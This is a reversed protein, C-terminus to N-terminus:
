HSVNRNFASEDIFVLQEAKYYIGIVLQYQAHDEEDHEIAPHTVQQM